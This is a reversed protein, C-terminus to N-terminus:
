GDDGEEPTDGRTATSGDGAATSDDSARQRELGDYTSRVHDDDVDYAGARDFLDGWSATM